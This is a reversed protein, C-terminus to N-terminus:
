FLIILQVNIAM